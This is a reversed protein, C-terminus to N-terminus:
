EEGLLHIASHSDKAAFRVMMFSVGIIAAMVALYLLTINRLIRMDDRRLSEPAIEANDGAFDDNPLARLTSKWMVRGDHLMVVAPNGRALMKIETDEATYVPYEPLALDDWREIGEPTASVIAMMEIDHERAWSYLSNIKWTTSISVNDLDPMLLLLVDGDNVAVEATVDEDGTENWIRFTSDKERKESGTVGTASEGSKIERREVFRWGEDESPLEDDIGYERQEGDKEYIFVYEPMGEEGDEGSDSILLSGAPYPRFDLLPQYYYGAFGIAVVYGATALLAIWQMSPRVLWGSRINYKVLWIVMGTLVVNKWFTQWNTLVLADGFCGCDAVPDAIAIWLTLPLMVAMFLLAFVPTSRRFLGLCLFVGVVFEYICLAFVAILLISEPMDLHWAAFYDEFKYLTGRPDIGKVFGSYVFVVGCLLRVVWTIWPICREWTVGCKRSNSEAVQSMSSSSRSCRM